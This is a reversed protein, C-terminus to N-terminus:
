LVAMPNRIELKRSNDCSVPLVMEFTTGEGSASECNITGAIVDNVINRVIALGLGTGGTERGSTVFPDFIRPKIDESVGRGDDSFVLRFSSTETIRQILITVTGGQGPEFAYRITNQLLNILVQSLHGPYGDWRFDDGEDADVVVKIRNKKLEPGLTEVCDDIVAKLGVEMRQDSLQSSSLKRFSQILRHARDLNKNMLRVSEQLDLCTEEDCGDIAAAVHTAIDGIVSGATRAVGLPTNLEHAVGTVMAAISELRDQYMQNRLMQEQNLRERLRLTSYAICWNEIFLQADAVLDQRAKSSPVGTEAIFILGGRAPPMERIDAQPPAPQVVDLSKAEEERAEFIIAFHDDSLGLESGLRETMFALQADHAGLLARHYIDRPESLYEAKATSITAAAGAALDYNFVTTCKHKLELFQLAEGMFVKLDDATSVHQLAKTFSQLQRGYALLTSIDQSSRLCARLISFFRAPDMDLKHIYYDIDYENLVTEEPVSGAQGTRLIIRTSRPCKTRITGCLKLGSDPKEMVVDVVAVHFTNGAQSLLEMAEAQSFASVIAFGRDRWLKNKLVLRTIAHVDPDDDVVLIRWVSDQTNTRKPDNRTNM